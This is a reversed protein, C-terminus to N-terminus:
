GEIDVDRRRIRPRQHLSLATGIGAAVLAAILAAGTSADFVFRLALAIPAAFSFLFALTWWIFFPWMVVYLRARGPTAWATRGRLLGALFGATLLAPVVVVAALSGAFHTVTAVLPIQLGIA